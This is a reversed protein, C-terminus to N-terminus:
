FSFTVATATLFRKIKAALRDKHPTECEWIVLSKWGLKRLAKRSMRDREVNRELKAKWYEVRSKPIKGDICGKHVHWFCGHVFIVKRLSSFVLDPKSPLDSRHLRFSSSVTCSPASWCNRTQTAAESEGCTKM